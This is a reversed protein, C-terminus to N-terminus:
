YYAFREKRMKQFSELVSLTIVAGVAFAFVIRVAFTRQERAWYYGLAKDNMVVEIEQVPSLKGSPVTETSTRTGRFKEVAGTVQSVIKSRWDTAVTEKKSEAESVCFESNQMFDSFSEKYTFDNFEDIMASLKKALKVHDGYAGVVARVKEYFRALIRQTIRALFLFCYFRRSNDQFVYWKYNPIDSTVPWITDSETKINRLKKRIIKQEIKASKVMPSKPDLPAPICRISLRSTQPKQHSKSSFVTITPSQPEKNDDAAASVNPAEVSFYAITLQQRPVKSDLSFSLNSEPGAEM